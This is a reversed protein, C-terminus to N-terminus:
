FDNINFEGQFGASIHAAELGSTKTIVGVKFNSVNFERASVHVVGLKNVTHGHDGQFPM